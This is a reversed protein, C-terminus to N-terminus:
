DKIHWWVDFICHDVCSTWYIHPYAGIMMGVVKIDESANEIVVRAISKRNLEKLLIKLCTDCKSLIPLSMALMLM